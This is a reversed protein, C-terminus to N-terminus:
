VEILEIFFPTMKQFQKEYLFTLRTEMELYFRRTFFLHRSIANGSLVQLVNSFGFEVTRNTKLFITNM